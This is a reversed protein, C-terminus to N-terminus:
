HLAASIPKHPVTREPHIRCLVLDNRVLDALVEPHEPQGNADLKVRLEWRWTPVQQLIRLLARAVVDRDTSIEARAPLEHGDVYVSLQVDGGQLNRWWHRERHTMVLITEGDRIYSVPFTYRKGSKRGTVTLLVTHRDGFRHLPSRLLGVVIPNYYRQTNM